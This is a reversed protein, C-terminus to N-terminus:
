RIAENLPNSDRAFSLWDGHLFPRRYWTFRDLLNSAVDSFDGAIGKFVANGTGALPHGPFDPDFNSKDL